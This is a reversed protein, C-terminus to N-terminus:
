RSDTSYNQKDTTPLNRSKCYINTTVEQDGLIYPETFVCGRTNMLIISANRNYQEPIEYNVSQGGSPQINKTQIMCFKVM